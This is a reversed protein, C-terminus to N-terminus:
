VFFVVQELLLDNIGLKMFELLCTVEGVIMDKALCRIPEIILNIAQDFLSVYNVLYGVFEYVDFFVVLRVEDVVYELRGSWCFGALESVLLM